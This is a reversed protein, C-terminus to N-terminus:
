LNTGNERKKNRLSQLGFAAAGTLLIIGMADLADSNLIKDGTKPLSQNSPASLSQASKDHSLPAVSSSSGIEQKDRVDSASDNDKM